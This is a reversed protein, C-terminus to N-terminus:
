AFSPQPQGQRNRAWFILAAGVVLVAPVLLLPNHMVLGILITTASLTLAVIFMVVAVLFQSVQGVVPVLNLLTNLPSFCACLGIWMMLFGGLRFLWLMTLYETNMTSIAQERNMTFARYLTTGKAEFPVLQTGEVKGFLTVGINNPVVNYSIRLDGIRPSQLAGDREVLYEDELHWPQNADIAVTRLDVRQAEPLTLIEPAVTYAELAATRVTWQSGKTSMPPNIHGSEHRFDDSDEPSSTWHKSYSYTTKTTKSGDSHTTTSSRSDEKWSYMEVVRELKLYEGQRIFIDGLKERSSLTGTAAVLKSQMDPQQMSAVMPVSNEAIKALNVRSENYWLLIFSGFFLCIGLLAGMISNGFRSMPGTRTVTTYHDSM